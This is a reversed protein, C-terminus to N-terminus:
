VKESDNCCIGCRLRDGMRCERIIGQSWLSGTWFSDSFPTKPFSPL